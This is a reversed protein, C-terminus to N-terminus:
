GSFIVIFFIISKLITDFLSQRGPIMKYKCKIKELFFKNLTKICVGLITAITTIIVLVDRISSLNM